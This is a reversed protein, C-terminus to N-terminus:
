DVLTIRDAISALNDHAATTRPLFGDIAVVSWGSEVLAISINSGVFGAAGFVCAKRM